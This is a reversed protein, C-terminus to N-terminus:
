SANIVSLIYHDSLDRHSLPGETTAPPPGCRVRPGRVCVGKSIKILIVSQQIEISQLAPSPPLNLGPFLSLNHRKPISASVYQALSHHYNKELEIKELSLKM